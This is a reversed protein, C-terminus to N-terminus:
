CGVTLKWDKLEHKFERCEFTVDVATTTADKHKKRFTLKFNSGFWTRDVVNARYRLDGIQLIVWPTRFDRGGVFVGDPSELRVGCDRFPPGRHAVLGIQCNEVTVADPLRREPASQLTAVSVFAIALTRM